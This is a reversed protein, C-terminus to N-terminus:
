PPNRRAANESENPASSIPAAGLFMVGINEGERAGSNLGTLSTQSFRRWFQREFRTKSFSWALM